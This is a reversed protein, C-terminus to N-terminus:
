PRARTRKEESKKKWNEKGKQAASCIKDQFGYPVQM